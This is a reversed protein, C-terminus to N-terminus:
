KTAFMVPARQNTYGGEVKFILGESILYRLFDTRCLNKGVGYAEHIQQICTEYDQVSQSNFIRGVMLRHESIDYEQPRRQRLRGAGTEVKQWDEASTECLQWDNIGKNYFISVDEFGEASRLYEAKLVYRSINGETIKEVILISQAKREVASGVHGIAKDASKTRHLVAIILINHEDTIKEMWKILKTSEGEDNFREIMDLLGDLVIIGCTPTISLYFDIMAKIKQVTEGRCTISMFRTPFAENEDMSCMKKVQKMMRYYDHRSQETDIHLVSDKGAPLKISQLFKEERDIAAAMIGCLYRTKGAKPLGTIVSFNGLSGINQWRIRWAVQEPGPEAAPNYLRQFFIEAINTQKTM